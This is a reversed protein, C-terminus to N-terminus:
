SSTSCANEQQKVSDLSDTYSESLSIGKSLFVQQLLKESPLVKLVAGCNPCPAPSLFVM